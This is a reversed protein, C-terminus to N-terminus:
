KHYLKWSLYHEKDFIVNKEEENGYQLMWMFCTSFTNMTNMADSADTSNDLWIDLGEAEWLDVLVDVMQPLSVPSPFCADDMKKM